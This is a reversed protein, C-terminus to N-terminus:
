LVCLQCVVWDVPAGGRGASGQGGDGEEAVHHACAMGDAGEVAAESGIEDTICRRPCGEEEELGAGLAGDGGEFGPLTQGKGALRIRGHGDQGGRIEEQRTQEGSHRRLQDRIRDPDQLRPNDRAVPRGLPGIGTHNLTRPPQPSLFASPPEISSQSHTQQPNTMPRHLKSDILGPFPNIEPAPLSPQLSPLSPPIILLPDRIISGNHQRSHAFKNGPRDRIRQLHQPASQLIIMGLFAKTSPNSAHHSLQPPLLAHSAEVPPDHRAHHPNQRSGPNREQDILIDLVIQRPPQILISHHQHTRHIVRPLCSPKSVRINGNNTVSAIEGELAIVVKVDTCVSM